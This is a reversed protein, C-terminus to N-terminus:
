GATLSATLQAHPEVAFPKSAVLDGESCPIQLNQRSTWAAQPATLQAILTKSATVRGSARVGGRDFLHPFRFSEYSPGSNVETYQAALRLPWLSPV